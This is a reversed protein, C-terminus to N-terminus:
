ESAGAAPHQEMYNTINRYFYGRDRFRVFCATNHNAEVRVQDGDDMTIPAQGDVSIVAQHSTNVTVVVVSGESLIIARDVSLHPAVAVILINRLDPPMIPGGVALAYATSGTPTAVILGDAVYSALPYGDVQARLNVPRVFNGRSIVVENLVTWSGLPEGERLHTAQLMMRGELWYRGELLLPLASQWEDRKVEALFGFRGWNIGLIPIHLPACLHGARLMTGDGGLAICLDAEKELRQRFAPDNFKGWHTELGRAGLFRAINEAEEAAAPIQPHAGIAVRRPITQICDM